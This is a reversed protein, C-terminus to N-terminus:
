TSLLCSENRVACMEWHDLINVINKTRKQMNRVACMEWHDLINLMSKILESM